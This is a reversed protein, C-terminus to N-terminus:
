YREFEEDEMAMGGLVLEPGRGPGSLERHGARALNKVSEQVLRPARGRGSHSGALARAADIRNSVKFFAIATQLEEAQSALEEATSSMEEASSANRQIVQDLQQIAKNIQSAGSDQERSAATIEQVLEATRQVDPLIKALLDGAKEAVKVSSSSLAMIEGAARQSREALKRVESAVVAFGKGHEGARAAEIAANLALLNTQRAIEEIISIKDAIQGMAEVTECVATGGEKADAAAKLAIKETQSANDANQRINSGMEEMSSSVEEVSSAQDTAGQSMQESSASLQGSGAAVNDAAAKVGQVIETLKKVMGAIARMLQGLEDQSRAEVVVDLDGAALRDVVAVLSRIPNSIGRILLIGFAIVAVILLAVASFVAIKASRVRRHTKEATQDLVALSEGQHKEVAHLLRQFAPNSEEIFTQNAQAGEGRLLAETAKANAAGLASFSAVLAEANAKRADEEAEKTASASRKVLAEVADLDKERLLKLTLDQVEAAHGVLELSSQALTKAAVTNSDSTTTVTELLYSLGGAAGATAVASVALFAILKNRITMHM